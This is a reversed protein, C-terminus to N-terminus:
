LRVVNCDSAVDDKNLNYDQLQFAYIYLSNYTDMSIQIILKIINIIIINKNYYLFFIRETLIENFLLVM